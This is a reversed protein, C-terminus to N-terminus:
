LIKAYIEIYISAPDHIQDINISKLFFDLKLYLVFVFLSRDSKADSIFDLLNNAKINVVTKNEIAPKGGKIPKKVFIFIKELTISDEINKTAVILM